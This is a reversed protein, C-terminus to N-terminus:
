LRGEPRRNESPHVWNPAAVGARWSVLAVGATVVLAVVLPAVIYVDLALAAGVLAGWWCRPSRWSAVDPL